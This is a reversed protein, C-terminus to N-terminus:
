RYGGPTERRRFVWPEEFNVGLQWLGVAAGIADAMQADYDHSQDDYALALGAKVMAANLDQGGSECVGYRRGFPDPDGKLHCTVKGRGALLQMERKAVDYCGWLKGNMQCTQRPEPADIGWLIVRQLGFKLIDADLVAPTGSITDPDSQAAAPGALLAMAFALTWFKRFRCALATDAPM